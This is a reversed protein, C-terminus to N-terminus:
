ESIVVGSDVVGLLEELQSDQGLMSRKADDCHQALEQPGEKPGKCVHEPLAAPIALFLNMLLEHPYREFSLRLAEDSDSPIQKPPGPIQYLAGQTRNDGQSPWVLM